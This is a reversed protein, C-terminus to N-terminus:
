ADHLDPEHSLLEVLIFYETSTKAEKNQLCSHVKKITSKTVAVQM